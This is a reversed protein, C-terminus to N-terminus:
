QQLKHSPKRRNVPKKKVEDELSAPFLAETVKEINSPTVIMLANDKSIEPHLHRLSLYALFGIGEITEAEESFEEESISTNVIELLKMPDLDGIERATKIIRERREENAKKRQERIRARFEAMDALSLETFVFTKTGIILKTKKPVFGSLDMTM